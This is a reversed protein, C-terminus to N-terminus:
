LFRICAFCKTRFHVRSRYRLLLSQRGTQIVLGCLSDLQISMGTIFGTRRRQTFKLHAYRIIESFKGRVDDESRVDTCEGCFERFATLSWEFFGSVKVVEDGQVEFVGVHRGVEGQLINRPVAGSGERPVASDECKKKDGQAAAGSDGGLPLASEGCLRVEDATM